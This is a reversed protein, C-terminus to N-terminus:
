ATCTYVKLFCYGGWILIFMVVSYLIDVLPAKDESGELKQQEKINRWHNVSNHVVFLTFIIAVFVVAGSDVYEKLKDGAALMFGIVAFYGVIIKYRNSICNQIVPYIRGTLITKETESLDKSM